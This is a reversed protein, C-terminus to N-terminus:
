TRIKGSRDLTMTKIASKPLTLKGNCQPCAAEFPDPLRERSLKGTGAVLGFQRACVPCILYDLRLETPAAM